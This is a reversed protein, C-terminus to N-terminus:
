KVIIGIILSFIIGGAIWDKRNQKKLLENINNYNSETTEIIKQNMLDLSVSKENIDKLINIIADKEKLQKILISVDDALVQNEEICADYMILDKGIKQITELDFCIKDNIVTQSFCSGCTFIM